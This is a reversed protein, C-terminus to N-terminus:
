FLTSPISNELDYFRLGVTLTINLNTTTFYSPSLKFYSAEYAGRLTAFAKRVNYGFSLAFSGAWEVRPTTHNGSEAKYINLAVGPGGLLIPSVFFRGGFSAFNYGYGNNYLATNVTGNDKRSSGYALSSGQGGYFLRVDNGKAYREIYLSDADVPPKLQATTDCTLTGAACLGGSM